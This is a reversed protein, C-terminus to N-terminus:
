DVPKPEFDTMIVQYRNRPNKTVNDINRKIATSAMLEPPADDFSHHCYDVYINGPLGYRKILYDKFFQANKRDTWDGSYPIRKPNSAYFVKNKDDRYVCGLTSMTQNAAMVSAHAILTLSIISAGTKAFSRNLIINMNDLVLKEYLPRRMTTDTIAGSFSFALCRRAWNMKGDDEDQPKRGPELCWHIKTAVEDGVSLPNATIDLVEAPRVAFWPNSPCNRSADTINIVLTVKAQRNPSHHLHM